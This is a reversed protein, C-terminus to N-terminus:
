GPARGEDTGSGGTEGITTEELDPDPMQGRTIIETFESAAAISISHTTHKEFYEKHIEFTHGQEIWREAMEDGVIGKQVDLGEEIKVQSRKCGERRCGPCRFVRKKFDKKHINAYFRSIIGLCLDRLRKTANRLLVEHERKEIAHFREIVKIFCNNLHLLNRSDEPPKGLFDPVLGNMWLLLLCKWHTMSGSSSGQKEPAIMATNRFRVEGNQVCSGSPGSERQRPHIRSIGIPPFGSTHLALKIFSRNILAM